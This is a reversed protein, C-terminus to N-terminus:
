NDEGEPLTSDDEDEEENDPDRAEKLVQIEAPDDNNIEDEALVSIGGKPIPTIRTLSALLSEISARM